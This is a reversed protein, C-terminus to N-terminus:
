ALIISALRRHSGPALAFDTLGPHFCSLYSPLWNCHSTGGAPKFGRGIKRETGFAPGLQRRCRRGVDCHARYWYRTRTGTREGIRLGITAGNGNQEGVQRAEGREALAQIGLVYARQLAVQELLHRAMSRKPPKTSLEHAISDPTNPAGTM